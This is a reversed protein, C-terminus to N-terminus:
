EIWGLERELRMIKEDLETYRRDLVRFLEDKCEDIMKEAQEESISGSIDFYDRQATFLDNLVKRLDPSALYINEKIGHWFPVYESAPSLTVNITIPGFFHGEGKRSRLPCILGTMEKVLRDHQKVLRDLNLSNVMTSAQIKAQIAYNITVIVLAFALISSSIAGYAVWDWCM